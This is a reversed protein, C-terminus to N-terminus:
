ADKLRIVIGFLEREGNDALGNFWTTAPLHDPHKSGVTGFFSRLVSRIHAEDYDELVGEIDAQGRVAADEVMWPVCRWITNYGVNTMRGIEAGKFELVVNYNDRTM